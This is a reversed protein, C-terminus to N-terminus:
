QVTSRCYWYKKTKFPACHPSATVNSTWVYSLVLVLVLALARHPDRGAKLAKEAKPSKAFCPISLDQCEHVKKKERAKFFFGCGKGTIQFLGLDGLKKEADFGERMM